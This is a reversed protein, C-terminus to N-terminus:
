KDKIKYVIYQIGRIIYYIGIGIVVIGIIKYITNIM